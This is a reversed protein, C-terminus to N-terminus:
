VPKTKSGTSNVIETIKKSLYLFCPEHKAQQYKEIREKPIAVQWNHFQGYGIKNLIVCQMATASRIINMVELFNDRHFNFCM